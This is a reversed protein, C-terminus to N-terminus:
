CDQCCEYAEGILTEYLSLDTTMFCERVEDRGHAHEETIIYDFSPDEKSFIHEIDSRLREQNGKVALVYDGKNEIIKKVIWGQCGMADITIICGEIMLTDLLDPIVRIENTKRDVSLQGLTLGNETAFANIIHIPREDKGHARRVTKGDIAIVEKKTVVRIDEIWTLFCGQFAQSDLISFVRAFTDQSPIGNPLELYQKLWKERGQGFAEIDEWTDANCIVALITIIVIDLLEHRRIYTIREGLIQYYGLAKWSHRPKNQPYLYIKEDSL